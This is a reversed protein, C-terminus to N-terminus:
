VKVVVTEAIFDHLAQKKQTFIAMVFGLMFPLASLIKSFYRLSARAFTLREGRDNLVKVSMFRKGFTAGREGSEMVAFYLWDLVISLLWLSPAVTGQVISLQPMVFLGGISAVIGLPIFIVLLTASILLRDIILALLRATFSGYRVDLRAPQAASSPPIITQQSM